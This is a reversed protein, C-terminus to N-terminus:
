PKVNSDPNIDTPGIREYKPKSPDFQLKFGSIAPFRGDLTPYRSVAEELAEKFISGPMKFVVMTDPFPYIGTLTKAQIPGAPILQNIRCAGTNVLAFDTAYETRMLDAVFNGFNTESSRTYDDRAELDVASWGIDIALEKEFKKM